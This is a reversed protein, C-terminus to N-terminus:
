KKWEKVMKMAIIFGLLAPIAMYMFAFAVHYWDIVFAPRTEGVGCAMIVVFATIYVALIVAFKTM